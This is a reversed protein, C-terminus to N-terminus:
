NNAIFLSIFYCVITTAAFSFLRGLLGMDMRSAMVFAIVGGVLGLLAPMPEIDFQAKRNM